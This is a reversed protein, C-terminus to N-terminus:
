SVKQQLEMLQKKLRKNEEELETDAQNQQLKSQFQAKMANGLSPLMSNGGKKVPNLFNSASNMDNLNEFDKLQELAKYNDMQHVDAHLTM